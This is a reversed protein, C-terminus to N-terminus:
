LEADATFHIALQDGAASGAATTFVFAVGTQSAQAVVGACDSGRTINRPQNNPAGPNFTVITPTSRMRAPFAVHAANMALSPGVIQPFRVPVAANAMQAPVATLPFSKFFYRQCRLLDDALPRMAFPTAIPGDELQVGTIEYWDDAGAVGEPFCHFILGLQTAAAPVNVPVAFRAWAQSLTVEQRAAVTSGVWLENLLLAASEDGGTGAIVSARLLSGPPSYSAGARAWFSLVAPRGALTLSDATELAQVLRPVDVSSSGANRQLRLAFQFQPLGIGPSQRSVTYSSAAPQGVAWRDALYTVASSSGSSGSVGRQWLRFAGNFLHNGGALTPAGILGLAREDSIRSDTVATMGPDVRVQAVPAADSPIAPPLPAAAAEGAVVAVLGSARDVVIRDIRPLTSPIALPQSVQAPIEVLREGNFVFGPDLAVSLDPIAQAHPAFAGALRRLVAFGGDISAKYASGTQTTADPQTFTAVTM